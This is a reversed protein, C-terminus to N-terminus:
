PDAFFHHLVIAQFIIDMARLIAGFYLGFAYEFTLVFLRSNYVYRYVLEFAKVDKSEDVNPCSNHALAHVLYPLIYEPYATLSNADSQMSIQRAKLQHCIQIIDALNQKEQWKLPKHFNLWFLLFFGVLIALM